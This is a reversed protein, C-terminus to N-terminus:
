GRWGGARWREAMVTWQHESAHKRFLDVSMGRCVGEPVRAGQLIEQEVQPRHAAGLAFLEADSMISEAM